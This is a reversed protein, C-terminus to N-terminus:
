RPFGMECISDVAQQLASGALLHSAAASYPDSPEAAAAAAEAPAAEAAPQAAAPASVEAQPLAAAPADSTAAASPADVQMASAGGQAQLLLLLQSCCVSHQVVSVLPVDAAAVVLVM